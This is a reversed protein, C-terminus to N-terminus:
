IRCGWMCCVLDILSHCTVPPNAPALPSHNVSESRKAREEWMGLEENRATLEENLANITKMAQDLECRENAMRDHLRKENAQAQTLRETMTSLQYSMDHMQRSRLSASVDAQLIWGITVHWLNLSMRARVFYLLPPLFCDSRCVREKAVIEQLRSELIARNEVTEEDTVLSSLHAKSRPTHQPSHSSSSSATTSSDITPDREIRPRESDAAAASTASQLPAPAPSASAATAYSTGNSDSPESSPSITAGATPVPQPAAMQCPFLPVCAPFSFEAGDVFAAGPPMPGLAHFVLWLMSGARCGVAPDRGSGTVLRVLCTEFPSVDGNSRTGPFEGVEVSYRPHMLLPSARPERSKM